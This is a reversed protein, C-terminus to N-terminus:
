SLLDIFTLFLLPLSDVERGYRVNVVVNFKFNKFIFIKLKYGNVYDVGLSAWVGLSAVEFSVLIM